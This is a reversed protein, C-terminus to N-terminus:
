EALVSNRLISGQDEGGFSLTSDVRINSLDAIAAGNSAASSDSTIIDDYDVANKV